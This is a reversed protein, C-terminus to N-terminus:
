FCHFADVFASTDFSATRKAIRLRVCSEIVPLASKDDNRQDKKVFLPISSKSHGYVPGCYRRFLAQHHSAFVHREQLCPERKMQSGNTYYEHVPPRRYCRARKETWVHRRMVMRIVPISVECQTGDRTSNGLSDTSDFRHVPHCDHLSLKLRETKAVRLERCPSLAPPNM